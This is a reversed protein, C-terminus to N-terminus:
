TCFLLVSWSRDMDLQDIGAHLATSREIRHHSGALGLVFMKREMGRHVIQTRHAIDHSGVQTRVWGGPPRSREMNAQFM